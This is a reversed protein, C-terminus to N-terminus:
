SRCYRPRRITVVTCGFNADSWGVARPELVIKTFTDSIDNCINDVNFSIQLNSATVPMKGVASKGGNTKWKLSVVSVFYQWIAYKEETEFLWQRPFCKRVCYISIYMNNWDAMIIWAFEFPYKTLGIHTDGTDSSWTRDRVLVKWWESKM